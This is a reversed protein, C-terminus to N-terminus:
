EKRNSKEKRGLGAGALGDQHVPGRAGDAVGGDLDRAGDAGNHHARGPGLVAHVDDGVAAGVVDEVVVVLAVLLLHHLVQAAVAEVDDDLVQGVDVQTM